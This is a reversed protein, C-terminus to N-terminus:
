QGAQASATLARQQALMFAIQNENQGCADAGYDRQCQSLNEGLALIAGQMQDMDRQYQSPGSQVAPAPPPQVVVNQAEAQNVVHIVIGAAEGQGALGGLNASITPWFFVVLAVAALILLWTGNGNKEKM